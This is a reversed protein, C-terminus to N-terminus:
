GTGGGRAALHRILAVADAPPRQEIRRYESGDPTRTLMRTDCLERRLLAHDGFAHHERLLDNVAREALVAGAPFRAWLCWLCLLRLNVKKPWRALRGDSDFHRAAREVRRHDVAEAVPEPAPNRLRERAASQARFHQFNRFGASRSLMNLLEVHGPKHDCGDLERELLRALTSVDPTSFPLLTRSM